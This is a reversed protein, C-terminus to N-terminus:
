LTMLYAILDAITQDSYDVGFSPYMIDRFGGVIYVGPHRISEEIYEEATM